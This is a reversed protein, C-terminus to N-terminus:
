GPSVVCRGERRKAGPPGCGVQCGAGPLVSSAGFPTTDPSEGWRTVRVEDPRGSEGTDQGAPAQPGRSEAAPRSRAGVTQSAMKSEGQCTRLGKRRAKTSNECAPTYRLKPQPHKSPMWVQSRFLASSAGSLFTLWAAGVLGVLM